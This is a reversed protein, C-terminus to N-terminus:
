RDVLEMLSRVQPLIRRFSSIEQAQEVNTQKDVNHNGSDDGGKRKCIEVLSM